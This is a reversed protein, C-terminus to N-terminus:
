GRLPTPAKVGVADGKTLTGTCNSNVM